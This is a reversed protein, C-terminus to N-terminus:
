CVLKAMGYRTLEFALFFRIVTWAALRVRAARAADRETARYVVSAVAGFVAVGAVAILDGLTDGPGASRQELPVGVLAVAVLAFAPADHISVFFRRWWADPVPLSPVPENM